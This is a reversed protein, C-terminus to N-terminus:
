WPKEVYFRLVERIIEEIEEYYHEHHVHDKSSIKCQKNFDAHVISNRYELLTKIKEINKSPFRLITFGQLVFRSKERSNLPVFLNELCVCYDIIKDESVKTIPARCCAQSFRNFAIPKKSYATEFKKYFDPFEILKNTNIKYQNPGSPTTKEICVPFPSVKPQSIIGAFGIIGPNFVRLALEIRNLLFQIAPYPENTNNQKYKYQIDLVNKYKIWNFGSSKLLDNEGDEIVCRITINSDIAINRSIYNLGYIPAIIKITKDKKKIM